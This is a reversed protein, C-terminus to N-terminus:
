RAIPFSRLNKAKGSKKKEPSPLVVFNIRQIEFLFSSSRFSFLFVISIIYSFQFKLLIILNVLSDRPYSHFHRVLYFSFIHFNALCNRSNYNDRIPAAPKRKNSRSSQIYKPSNKNTYKLNRSLSKSKLFDNRHGFPSADAADRM